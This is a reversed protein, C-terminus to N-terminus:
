YRAAHYLPHTSKRWIELYAGTVPECTATDIVQIDTFLGVGPQDETVDERVYEGTVDAATLEVCREDSDADSM